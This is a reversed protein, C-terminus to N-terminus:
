RITLMTFVKICLKWGKEASRHEQFTMSVAEEACKTIIDNFKKAFYKETDDIEELAKNCEHGSIKDKGNTMNQHESVSVSKQSNCKDSLSKSYRGQHEINKENQFQNKM